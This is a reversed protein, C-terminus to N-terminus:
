GLGATVVQNEVIKFGLAEARKKLNKIVRDKYLGEYYEQGKEVYAEGHKLMAYVILALKHAGATIAKPAGIRGKLRRLFAGLSSKSRLLTFAAMRLCRAANSGTRKSKSSLVKGGSIKNEPSLGLWSAFAKGSRFCSLDLGVESILTLATSQDIGPVKTLDVGSVRVLSARVDLNAGNGQKKKSSRPKDTTDTKEADVEIQPTFTLLHAEIAQDCELIKQRYFDYLELAQKLAFVQEEKYHGMLSKKITEVSNKCRCDRYTALVDPNREGSVIARTIRMGTEGTIDSLVNALQLNM